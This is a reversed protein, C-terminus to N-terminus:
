AAVVPQVGDHRVAVRRVVTGPRADADGGLINQLHAVVEPEVRRQDAEFPQVLVPAHGDDMPAAVIMRAQRM